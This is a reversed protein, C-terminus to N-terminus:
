AQHVYQGPAALPAGDLLHLAVPQAAIKHGAHQGLWDSWCTWWSGQFREATNVWDQPDAPAQGVAHTAFRYSAKAHALPGGAPNVIGVNHGGSTLVFSVPSHALGQIKYVSRWPSVHDTETAVVFLPIQIDSLRIPVGGVRYREEALDNRLYLRRLYESHMRAPLRTADANWARLATMPTQAGMLYEHVLKSWVLDRSNMLAFAGAMQRGDLYGPAAMLDELFAIQSEDIFLGLEGPERFDTQAALLTLTKLPNSKARGLSAAAMALLTGGLCYGVGQIGARPRLKRVTKLATFIGQELYDDLGLDRDPSGPNKWSVMFVTKGQGVLHKVLSDDPTLDLIYYKMIWSPVMLVPEADVEATSPAYQILEMLHNRFVVTGPTVAVTSGPKFADVGRPKGDGLVALADRWWNGMGGVLHSGATAWVDRLVQPNTAVLNSPSAMDLLQRTTFNVMDTHHRSVGRVGTVAEQWWQEQLLFAQALSAFPPANWEPPAFRRDRQAPEVCPPCGGLLSQPLYQWWRLSKRLASEILEAHKTPSVALHVLWDAYALALAAPSLGQALRALFLKLPLDLPAPGPREPHIESTQM